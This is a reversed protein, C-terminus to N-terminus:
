SPSAIAEAIDQYEMGIKLTHEGVRIRKAYGNKILYKDFEDADEILGMKQLNQCVTYSTTGKKITITVEKATENETTIETTQEAQSEDTSDEESTGEEEESTTNENETKKKDSQTTLLDGLPDEETVMGLKEAEKIIEEETMKDAAAGQYAVLFVISSFIIGVGVGRLFYKLKM